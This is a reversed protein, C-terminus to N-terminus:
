YNVDNNRCQRWSPIAVSTRRRCTPVPTCDSLCAAPSYASRLTRHRMTSPVRPSHPSPPPAPPMRWPGGSVVSVMWPPPAPAVRTWTLIIFARRDSQWIEFMADAIPEGSGDVVSLVLEVAGKAGPEVLNEAGELTLGIHVYPGVTQSPTIGPEAGDQDLINSQEYRFEGNKGTDIM